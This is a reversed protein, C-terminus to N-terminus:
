NVEKLIKLKTLLKIMFKCLKTKGYQELITQKLEDVPEVFDPKNEM